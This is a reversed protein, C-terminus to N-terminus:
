GSIKSDIYAAAEKINTLHRGDAFDIKIKFAEEVLVLLEAMDLSDFGLEEALRTTDTLTEPTLAKKKLKRNLDLVIARLKEATTM